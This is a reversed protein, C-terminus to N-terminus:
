DTSVDIHSVLNIHPPIEGAYHHDFYEVHVAAELLQMLRARNSDLSIDLVTVQDGAVAQVRDLLKIDRKVGTILEAKVPYALRLQHLACLGDADGNFVDYNM